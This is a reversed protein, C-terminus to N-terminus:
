EESVKGHMVKVYVRLVEAVSTAHAIAGGPVHPPDGDFVESISGVGAENMHRILPELLRKAGAFVERSEGKVNLFADIYAGMLWPWVTGQHYALDRATQDGKYRPKYDPHGPALTRLGFPTLLHRAVCDLIREAKEGSIVPSEMSIAFIQNPRISADPGNEGITDYLYGGEEYWFKEEFSARVKEAHIEYAAYMQEDDMLDALFAAARLAHYWLANIEVNKGIRPTVAKGEIRADMWTVPWGKKGAVILSDEDQRIDFHTGSVYRQIIDKVVDFLPTKITDKDKTHIYYEYVSNIFWLSADVTNDFTEEGEEPFFNPFLGDKYFRLLNLLFDRAEEHRGTILFLGPFSILADRIWLSFWLYGAIVGIDTKQKVIFADAAAFLNSLVPDEKSDRNLEISKRWISRHRHVEDTRITAPDIDLVDRAGSLIYAPKEQSLNYHFECIKFLHERSDYGREKELPYEFEELSPLVPSIEEANHVFYFELNNQDFKFAIKQPDNIKLIPSFGPNSTQLTHVGRFCIFPILNLKVTGNGFLVKYKISVVNKDHILIIRKEIEWDGIAYTFLPFPALQFNVLFVDSAVDGSGPKFCPSLSYSKEDITIIEQFRSLIMRRGLPPKSPYVLLGHYKRTNCGLITSSAYGGLGSTLLWERKLAERFDQCFEADIEAIPNM